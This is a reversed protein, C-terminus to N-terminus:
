AYRLIKGEENRLPPLIYDDEFFEGEQIEGDVPVKAYEIYTFYVVASFLCMNYYGFLKSRFLPEEVTKLKIVNSISHTYVSVGIVAVTAILLM